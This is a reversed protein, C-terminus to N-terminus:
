KQLIPNKTAVAARDSSRIAVDWPVNRATAIKRLRKMLEKENITLDRGNLKSMATQLIEGTIKEDKVPITNLWERDKKSYSEVVQEPTSIADVIEQVPEVPEDDILKILEVGDNKVTSASVKFGTPPEPDDDDDDDLDDRAVLPKGRLKMFSFNAGMLLLIAMPDFVFIFAIIVLRVAKELNTSGDEYILAAIYKVPGVELELQRLESTLTLKEDQFKGIADEASDITGALATRQEEQNARVARSGDPGSIKSYQILTNVQEDLQSKVTEADTIKSQERAIRQDLREIQATNNGVPANQELHAKSLFGFIGMSTLLMAVIVAPLMTFKISTKEKWNQYIWSVGVVKGLEIVAGMILAPIPAGAFVAMIGAIAFWAAVSAMALATILTLVAFFM